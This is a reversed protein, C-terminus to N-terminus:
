VRADPVEPAHPHHAVITTRLEEKMEIIPSLRVRLHPALGTVLLRAGDLSASNFAVSGDQAYAVFRTDGFETVSGVAPLLAEKGRALRRMEGRKDSM